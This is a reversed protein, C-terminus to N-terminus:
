GRVYRFRSPSKAPAAVTDSERNSGTFAERDASQRAKLRCALRQTTRSGRLGVGGKSISPALSRKSSSQAAASGLIGDLRRLRLSRRSRFMESKASGMRLGLGVRHGAVQSGSGHGCRPTRSPESRRWVVRASAVEPDPPRCLLFPRDAGAYRGKWSPRPPKIGLLSEPEVRPRVPVLLLHRTGRSTRTLRTRGGGRRGRGLHARRSAGTM